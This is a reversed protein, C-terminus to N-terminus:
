GNFAKFNNKKSYIRTCFFYRHIYINQQIQEFETKGDKELMRNERCMTPQLKSSENLVSQLPSLGSLYVRM